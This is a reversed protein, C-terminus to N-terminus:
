VLKRDELRVALCSAGGLRLRLRSGAYETRAPPRPRGLARLGRPTQDVQSRAAPALSDPGKAAEDPPGTFDALSGNSHCMRMRTLVALQRRLRAFGRPLTTRPRRVLLHPAHPSQLHESLREAKLRAEKATWQPKLGAHVLIGTKTTTFWRFGSFGTSSNPAIRHKWFTRFRTAVASPVSEVISPWCTCTTIAWSRKFAVALASRSIELGALLVQLSGTGRNVLDGVLWLRDVSEDFPLKEWSNSSAGM